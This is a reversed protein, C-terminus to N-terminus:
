GAPIETSMTEGRQNQRADGPFDELRIEGASAEVIRRITALSPRRRGNIILSLHGPSVRARRAFEFAHLGKARIYAEIRMPPNDVLM